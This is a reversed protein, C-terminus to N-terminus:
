GATLQRDPPSREHRSSHTKDLEEGLHAAGLQRELTLVVEQDHSDQGQRAATLHEDNLPGVPSPDTNKEIGSKLAPWPGFDIMRM